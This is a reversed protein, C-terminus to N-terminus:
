NFSNVFFVAAIAITIVCLLLVVVVVICFLPTCVVLRQSQNMVRDGHTAETPMKLGLVLLPERLGSGLEEGVAAHSAVWGRRGTMSGISGSLALFGCGEM